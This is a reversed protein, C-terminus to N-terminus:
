KKRVDDVSQLQHVSTCKACYNKKSFYRFWYSRPNKSLHFLLNIINSVYWSNQNKKSLQTQFKWFKIAAILQIKRIRSSTQFKYIFKHFEDVSSISFLEQASDVNINSFQLMNFLYIKLAHLNQLEVNQRSIQSKHIRYALGVRSINRLKTVTFARTWLDLDENNAHLKQPIVDRYVGIQEFISKRIMVSPHALKPFVPTWPIKSVFIPVGWRKGFVDHPCIEIVDTGVIGVKPHTDLFKKQIRFRDSLVLDDHDMRAIYQGKAVSIGYNLAPVIGRDSIKHVRIRDNKLIEPLNDVQAASGNLVVILESDGPLFKLVSKVSRELFDDLIHVPMIVSIMEDDRFNNNFKM